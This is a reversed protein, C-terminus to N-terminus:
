KGSITIGDFAMYPLVTMGDAVQETSIAGLYSTGDFYQAFNVNEEGFNFLSANKLEEINM